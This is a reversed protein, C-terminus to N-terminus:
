NCTCAIGAVVGSCYGIAGNSRICLLTGAAQGSFESSRITGIVDLPLSPNWTGIGVNGSMVALAGGPSTTGIGVNHGATLYMTTINSQIFAINKGSANDSIEDNGAAGNYRLLYRANLSIGANGTSSPAIVAIQTGAPGGITLQASTNLTSIGINGNWVELSAGQNTITTGIGVNGSNPLYVDNTNATTWQLSGGSSAPAWTGVGVGNSTLIYGSSAGTPMNFGTMRATGAVDLLSGPNLTGIGTNGNGIGIFSNARLTGATDLATGPNSSGIGVNKSYNIGQSNNQWQSPANAFPPLAAFVTVSSLLLFLLIRNIM